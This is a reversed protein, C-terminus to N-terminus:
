QTREDIRKEIDAAQAKVSSELNKARELETFPAPAAQTPDVDAPAAGGPVRSGDAHRAPASPLLKALQTKGLWAVILVAILLVLIGAWGQQRHRSLRHPDAVHM